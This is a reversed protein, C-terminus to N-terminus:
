ALIADCCDAIRAIGAAPDFDAHRAAIEGAREALATEALMMRAVGAFDFNKITPIALRAVGLEGLRFGMRAQEMHHPFLALPCGGLVLQLASGHGGHTIALRAQRAAHKLDVQDATIRLSGGSLKEVIEPTADPAVALTPLGLGALQRMLPEFHPYRAPYYVFIREGDGTPWEPATAVAAIDLPGVYDADARPGFHDFEPLTTLFTGDAAFIDQLAALPAAGLEALARNVRVLTVEDARALEERDAKRMPNLAPFPRGSPPVTFGSGLAIAPISLSKTALLATPANEAILLEAASKMLLKRWNRLLHAIVAAEYYGSKDLIGAHNISTPLDPRTTPHPAPMVTGDVATLIRGALVVDRVAFNMEHGRAKLAPALAALNHLHGTGSGMEWACLIRGM